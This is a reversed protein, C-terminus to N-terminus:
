VVEHGAEENHTGSGERAGSGPALDDGANLSQESSLPPEPDVTVLGAAITRCRAHSTEVRRVDAEFAERDFIEPDPYRREPVGRFPAGAIDLFAAITHLRHASM